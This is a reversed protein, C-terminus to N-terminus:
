ATSSSVEEPQLEKLVKGWYSIEQDRDNIEDFFLLHMRFHINDNLRKLRRIYREINKAYRANYDSTKENIKKHPRVPRQM